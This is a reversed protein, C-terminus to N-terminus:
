ALGKSGGGGGRGGRQSAKSAGEGGRGLVWGVQPLNGKWYGRLGEEKGIAMFAALLNGKM